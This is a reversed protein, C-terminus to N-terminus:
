TINNLIRVDTINWKEICLKRMKNCQEKRAKAYAKSAKELTDFTGLHLSSGGEFDNIVARFRNNNYKRVSAGIYGSTNNKQKNTLFSNLKKPIFICTKPSYTKNDTALLDKDLETTSGEFERYNEEYWEAFNQYNLWEDCVIYDSYTPTKKFHYESKSYCRKIMNNWACYSKTMKGNDRSKYDGRGIYGVGCITKTFENLVTGNRLHFMPVEKIKDYAYLITCYGSKSGGDIIKCESGDNLKHIEGINARQYKKLKDM